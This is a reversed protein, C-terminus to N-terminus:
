PHNTERQRFDCLEIFLDECAGQGSRFFGAIIWAGLPTLVYLGARDGGRLGSHLWFFLLRQMASFFGPQIDRNSLGGFHEINRM